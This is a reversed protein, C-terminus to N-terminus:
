KFADGEVYEWRRRVLVGSHMRSGLKVEMVHASRWRRGGFVVGIRGALRSGPIVLNLKGCRCADSGQLRSTCHTHSALWCRLAAIHLESPHRTLSAEIPVGTWGETEARRVAEWIWVM